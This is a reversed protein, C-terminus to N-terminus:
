KAPKPFRRCDKTDLANESAVAHASGASAQGWLGKCILDRLRSQSGLLVADDNPRLHHHRAGQAQGEVLHVAEHVGRRIPRPPRALNHPGNRRRM